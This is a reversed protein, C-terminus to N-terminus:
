GTIGPGAPGPGHGRRGGRRRDRDKDADNAEEGRGGLQSGLSRRKSARSPTARSTHGTEDAMEVDLIQRKSGIPISPTTVFPVGAPPLQPLSPNFTSQPAHGITAAEVRHSPRVPSHHVKRNSVSHVLAPRAASSSASTSPSSSAFTVPTNQWTQPAPITPTTAGSPTHMHDPVPASASRPPANLHQLAHRAAAARRPAPAPAPAPAAASSSAAAPSPEDTEEAAFAAM